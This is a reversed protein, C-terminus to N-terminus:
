VCSGYVSMGKLELRILVGVWDLNDMSRLWIEMVYVYAGPTFGSRMGLCSIRSLEPHGLVCLTISSVRHGNV